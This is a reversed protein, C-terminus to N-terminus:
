SCAKKVERHSDFFFGWQLFLPGRVIAQWIFFLEIRIKASNKAAKIKIAEPDIQKL